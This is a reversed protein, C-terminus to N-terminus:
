WSGGGGGGGGGGGSFGGGFGGGSSSSRQTASYSAIASNVTSDFDGVLDSIPDAGRGLVAGAYYAGFYSPVPPETAMETRYKDAWERACDFAVAWPIYATYLESRGAFDFRDKSSPTSLVRRFGGLQSWLERGSKTRKTGAGTAAMSCGFIAFAGPIIGLLSMGFPNWFLNVLMLALGGIVLVGGIGAFGTKSLYGQDLAWLRVVGKFRTMESQLKKGAAVDRKTATFTGQATALLRGTQWALDDSTSADVRARVTWSDKTRELSLVGRQAGDLLTAVFAHRPVTERLLYAGQAPSVGAPPAYVLPFPPQKERAKAGLLGGLVAGIVGLILVLITLWLHTGLVQDWRMVWPLHGGEAPTTIALPTLLTIPTRAPLSDVHLSLNRTGTGTPTCPVASDGWGVGCRVTQASDAPLTVAVNVDTMAQQWGGPVVNWYFSSGGGKAKLLVGPITYRIVYRHTGTSLTRDADGIRLVVFRGRQQTERSWPESRGDMSVSIDQPTRRAHPANQDLRDFFRFIGHRGTTSVDVDVTEVASLDGDKGVTFAADYRSISTPEDAADGAAPAYDFIAAPLALLGLMVLVGLLYVVFRNVVTVRAM